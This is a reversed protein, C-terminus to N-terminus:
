SVFAGLLEAAAAAMTFGAAVMDADATTFGTAVTEADATTFGPAVMDADASTFGPAVMDALSMETGTCSPGVDMTPVQRAGQLVTMDGLGEPSETENASVIDVHSEM